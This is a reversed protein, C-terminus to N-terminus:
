GTGGTYDTNERLMRDLLGWFFDEGPYGEIRAVERDDVMLVFTPTIRLPGDFTLDDPRPAHLDMHRIPAFAGETTKGYEPGVQEHWMLCYICGKQEVMVLETAAAPVGLSVATLLGIILGRLTHM